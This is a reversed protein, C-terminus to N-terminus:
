IFPSMLGYWLKYFDHSSVSKLVPHLDCFVQLILVSNWLGLGLGLDTCMNVQKAVSEARTFM